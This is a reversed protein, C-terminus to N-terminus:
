ILLMFLWGWGDGDLQELLLARNLIESHSKNVSFTSPSLAARSFSFEHLQDQMLAPGFKSVCCGKSKKKMSDWVCWYKGEILRMRERKKSVCMSKARGCLRSWWGGEERDQDWGGKIYKKGDQGKPTLTWRHAHTSEPWPEHILCPPPTFVPVSHPRPSM